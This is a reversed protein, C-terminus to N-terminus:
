GHGPCYAYKTGQGQPHATNLFIEGGNFKALRSIAQILLLGVIYDAIRLEMLEDHFCAIVDTILLLVKISLKSHM